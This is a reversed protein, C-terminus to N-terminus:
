VAANHLEAARTRGDRLKIYAQAARIHEAESVEAKNTLAKKNVAAKMQLSKLNIARVAEDRQGLREAAERTKRSKAEATYRRNRLANAEREEQVVQRMSEITKTGATQLGAKSGVVAILQTAWEKACGDEAAIMFVAEILM